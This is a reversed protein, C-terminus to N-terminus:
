KEQELDLCYPYREPDNPIEKEINLEVLLELFAIAEEKTVEYFSLSKALTMDVIEELGEILTIHTNNEMDWFYDNRNEDQMVMLISDWKSNTLIKDIANYQLESLTM